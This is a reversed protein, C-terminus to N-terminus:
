VDILDIPLDPALGEIVHDRVFVRQAVVAEGRARVIGGGPLEVTAIGDFVFTVVGVQLPPDPFVQKFATHLNNM